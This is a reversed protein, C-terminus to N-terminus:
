CGGITRESILDDIKPPALRHKQQFKDSGDLLQHASLSTQHWSRLEGRIRRGGLRINAFRALQQAIRGFDRDDLADQVAPLPVLPRHQSQAFRANGEWVSTPMTRKARARRRTAM